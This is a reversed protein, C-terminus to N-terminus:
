TYVFRIHMYLTPLRRYYYQEYLIADCIACGHIYM